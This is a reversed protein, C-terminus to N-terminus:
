AHRDLSGLAHGRADGGVIAGVGHARRHAGLRARFVQALGPVHKRDHRLRASYQGARTMGLGTAVQRTQRAKLRRRHDDLDHVVVAGHRATRLQFVEGACVLELDARM